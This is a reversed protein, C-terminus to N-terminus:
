EYNKISSLDKSKLKSNTNIRKDSLERTEIKRDEYKILEDNYKIQALHTINRAKMYENTIKEIRTKLFDRFNTYITNDLRLLLHLIPLLMRNLLIYSLLYKDQIEM